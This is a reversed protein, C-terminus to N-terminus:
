VKIKYVIYGTLPQLAHGLASVSVTIERKILRSTAPIICGNM